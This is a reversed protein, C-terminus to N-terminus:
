QSIKDYISVKTKKHSDDSYISAYIKIIQLYQTGLYRNFNHRLNLLTRALPWRLSFMLILSLKLLEM